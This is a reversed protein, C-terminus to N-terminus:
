GSKAVSVCEYLLREMGAVDDGRQPQHQVFHQMFRDNEEETPVRGLEAILFEALAKALEQYCQERQEDTKPKPVLKELRKVRTELNAVL